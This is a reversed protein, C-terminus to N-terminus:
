YKKRIFNGNVSECYRTKIAQVEIKMNSDLKGIICVNKNEQLRRYMEDAIEDYGYVEVMSKNILQIKARAISIHKTKYKRYRNYIFQFEIKEKIKGWIIVINM